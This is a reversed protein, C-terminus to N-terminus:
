SASTCGCWTLCQVMNKNDVSIEKLTADAGFGSV